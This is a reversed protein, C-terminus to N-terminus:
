DANNNPPNRSTQILPSAANRFVAQRSPRDQQLAPVVPFNPLNPLGIYLPRTSSLVARPKYPRASKEHRAPRELYPGLYVTLNGSIHLICRRAAQPCSVSPGGRSTRLTSHLVTYVTLLTLIISKIRRRTHRDGPGRLGVSPRERCSGDGTARPSKGNSISPPRHHNKSHPQTARRGGWVEVALPQYEASQGTCTIDQLYSRCPMADSQYTHVDSHRQRPEVWSLMAMTIPSAGLHGM